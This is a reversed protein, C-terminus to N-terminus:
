FLCYMTLYIDFDISLSHFTLLSPKAHAIKRKNVQFKCHYNAYLTRFEEQFRFCNPVKANFFLLATTELTPGRLLILFPFIRLEFHYVSWNNNNKKKEHFRSVFLSFFNAHGNNKTVNPVCIHTAPMYSNAYLTCAYKPGKKWSENKRMLNEIKDNWWKTTMKVIPVDIHTAPCQYQSVLTQSYVSAFVCQFHFAKSFNNHTM